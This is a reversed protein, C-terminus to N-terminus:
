HCLWAYLAHCRSTAGAMSCLLGELALLAAAVGNEAGRVTGLVKTRDDVALGVLGCGDKQLSALGSGEETAALPCAEQHMCPM